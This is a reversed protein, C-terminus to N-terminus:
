PNRVIKGFIQGGENKGSWTGAYQDRYLIVRATYAGMGPISLDTLTIVPTDGAWKITVPLPLPIDHGGYQFRSRLLWTDGTLKSVGEIVYREEGIIKDDRLRTSRGVLTVGKMMEVFKRDLQDQTTVVKKSCGTLAILVSLLVHLGRRAPKALPVPNAVDSM